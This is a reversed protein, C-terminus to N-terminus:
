EAVQIRYCKLVNTAHSHKLRAIDVVHHGAHGSTRDALGAQNSLTAVFTRSTTPEHKGRLTFALKQPGM